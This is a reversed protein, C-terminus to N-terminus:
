DAFAVTFTVEAIEFNTISHTIPAFRAAYLLRLTNNAEIRKWGTSQMNLRGTAPDFDDSNISMGFKYSDYDNVTFTTDWDVLKFGGFTRMKVSTVKVAGSSYNAIVANSAMVSSGDQLVQVPLSTPVTVSFYRGGNGGNGGSNYPEVNLTVSSSASGGSYNISPEANVSIMGFLMVVLLLALVRRM